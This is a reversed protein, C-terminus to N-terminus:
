EQQGKPADPVATIIEDLRPLQEDDNGAVETEKEEGEKKEDESSDDNVDIVDSVVESASTIVKSRKKRATTKIKRKTPTKKAKNKRKPTCATIECDESDGAYYTKARASLNRSRTAPLQAQAVPLRVPLGGGPTTSSVNPAVGTRVIIDNRRVAPSQKMQFPFVPPQRLQLPFERGQQAQAQLGEVFKRYHRGDQMGGDSHPEFESRRRSTLPPSFM